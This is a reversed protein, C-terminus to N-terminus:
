RRTGRIRLLWAAGLGIIAAAGPLVLWNLSSGQRTGDATGGQGTDIRSPVPISGPDDNNAGTTGSDDGSPNATDTSGAAPRVRFTVADVLQKGDAGTCTVVFRGLGRADDSSITYSAGFWGTASAHEVALPHGVRGRQWDTRDFFRGEIPKNTDCHRGDAEVWVKTGPRGSRPTVTAIITAKQAGGEDAQQGNESGQASADPQAAQVTPSTGAQASQGSTTQDNEGAWAAPAGVLMAALAFAVAGTRITIGLLSVRIGRTMTVEEHHRKIVLRHDGNGPDAHIGAV